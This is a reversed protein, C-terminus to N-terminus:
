SKKSFEEKLQNILERSKNFDWNMYTLAKKALEESISCRLALKKTQDLQSAILVQNYTRKNTVPYDRPTINLHKALLATSKADALARHAPEVQEIGYAALAKKLGRRKNDLYKINIYRSDFIIKDETEEIKINLENQLWVADRGWCCWMFEERPPLEYKMLHRVVEPLTNASDVDKQTIGTLKTCYDTLIPYNVPRVFESIEAIFNFRLDTIVIGIEIIEQKDRPFNEDCTLELDMVAFFRKGDIPGFHNEEKISNDDKLM